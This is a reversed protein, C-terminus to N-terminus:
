QKEFRKRSLLSLFQHDCLRKRSVLRGCKQQLLASLLSSKGIKCGDVSGRSSGRCFFTTFALAFEIVYYLYLLRRDSLLYVELANWRFGPGQAGFRKGPACM